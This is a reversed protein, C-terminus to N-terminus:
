FTSRASGFPLFRPHYNILITMWGANYNQYYNSLFYYNGIQTYLPGSTINTPSYSLGGAVPNPNPPNAVRYDTQNYKEMQYRVTVAWDPSVNYRAFVSLPTMKQTVVPFDFATASAIQAATGKAPTVPNMAKLQFQGSAQSWTAGGELRDPILTATISGYPTLLQDNNHTLWDWTPNNLLSDVSGTRYRFRGFNTMRDSTYGVNMSVFKNPTFDIDGGVMASAESQTGYLSHPYLDHRLEWTGTFTLQQVPNISAQFNIRERNRDAVDFIRADPNESSSAPVYAGDIRREGKAYSGHLTLWWIGTFDLSYRPTKENTKGVNRVEIDRTWSETAYGVSAHLGRRLQYTASVDGNAKSFPRVETTEGAIVSRDNLATSKTFAVSPTSNAYDFNRYRATINFNRFPRTTLTANAVTTRAQGHASTEPLPQLQAAILSNTTVPIFPANQEFDSRTYTGTVRSHLPLNVLATVSGTRAVNSPALATRGVAAGTTATNAVVQPNDSSVSTLSNDFKNYDFSGMLHFYQSTYAQTLRVDQVSQNIPELIERADNSSGGFAMGMPKEGRKDIRSVEIKTDFAKAPTFGLTAKLPAWQTRVPDVYPAARWAVSDPRLLTNNAGTLVPLAYIGSAGFNGLSRSDTSLTHVINDYRLQVDYLGPRNAWLWASQDRQFLNRGSVQYTGVSDKPTYRLMLQEVVFGKPLDRYEEFKGRQQDTLPNTYSRAGLDVAGTFTGL